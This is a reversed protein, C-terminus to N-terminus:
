KRTAGGGGAPRKLGGLQAFQELPVVRALKEIGAAGGVLGPLERALGDPRVVGDPQHDFIRIQDLPRQHYCAALNDPTEIALPQLFREASAATWLRPREARVRPAAIQEHGRNRPQAHM